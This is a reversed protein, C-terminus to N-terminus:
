DRIEDRVSDKGKEAAAVLELQCVSGRDQKTTEDVVERRLDDAGATELCQDGACGDRIVDFEHKGIRVEAGGNGNSEALNERQVRELGIIHFPGVSFEIDTFLLVLANWKEVADSAAIDYGNQKSSGDIGRIKIRIFPVLTHTM